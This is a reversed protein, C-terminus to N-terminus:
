RGARWLRMSLVVGGAALFPATLVGPFYGGALFAVLPHAVGNGMATLALFWLAAGTLRPVAPAAAIAALWILLAGANLSIFFERTWPDFGFLAPFRVYFGTALEEAFHAGQLALTVLGARKLRPGAERPPRAAAIFSAAIFAAMLGLLARYDSM